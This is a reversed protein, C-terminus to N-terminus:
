SLTMDLSMAQFIKFDWFCVMIQVLSTCWVTFNYMSHQVTCLRWMVCVLVCQLQEFISMHDWSSVFPRKLWSNLSLLSFPSSLDVMMSDEIKASLLFCQTTHLVHLLISSNSCWLCVCLCVASWGVACSWVCLRLAWCVRWSMLANSLTFAPVPVCGKNWINLKTVQYLFLPIKLNLWQRGTVCWKTQWCCKCGLIHKRLSLFWMFSFMQQFNVGGWNMQSTSSNTEESKSFYLMVDSEWWYIGQLSLTGDSNSDLYRIFVVCYDVLLGSSELRDILMKGLSFTCTLLFFFGYMEMQRCGNVATSGSTLLQHLALNRHLFM